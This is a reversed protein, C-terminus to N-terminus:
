TLIYSHQAINKLPVWNINYEYNLTLAPRKNAVALTQGNRNKNWDLTTTAPISHNHISFNAYGVNQNLPENQYTTDNSVFLVLGRCCKPKFREEFIEIRKIDKWFDYCGINQAGHQGLTVTEKQGFIFFPLPQAVTKYKIEIPYFKGEKELVIDIYINNIDTWPYINIPVNIINSPVHYEIFVRDFQKTQIFYNALYLQIDEERLFFDCRKDLADIILQLIQQRM